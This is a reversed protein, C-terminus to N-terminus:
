RRRQITMVPPHASDQEHVEPAEHWTSGNRAILERTVPVIQGHPLYALRAGGVTATARGELPLHKTRHSM